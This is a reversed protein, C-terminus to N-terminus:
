DNQGIQRCWLLKTGPLFTLKIEAKGRISIDPTATGPFYTQSQKPFSKFTARNTNACLITNKRNATGHQENPSQRHKKDGTQQPISKTWKGYEKEHKRNSKARTNINSKENGETRQQLSNERYYNKDQKSNHATWERIRKIQESNSVRRWHITEIKKKKEYESKSVIRKNETPWRDQIEAERRNM